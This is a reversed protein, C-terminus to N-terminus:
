LFFDKDQFMIKGLREEKSLTVALTAQAGFFVTLAVANVFVSKKM